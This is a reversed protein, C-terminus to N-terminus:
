PLDKAQDLKLRHGAAEIAIQVFLERIHYSSQEFSGTLQDLMHPSIASPDRQTTHQFLQRVFTRHAAESQVAYQAVDRAGKLRLSKGDDGMFDSAANIPKDKDKTRWRGLSDYHELSFGLPNITEHCAMCASDRTFATVKERMTLNPDFEADDFAIANPPPNLPRGIINRTLFVGRHIPSTSNHYAFATLLYPHTIVGSRRDPPMAVRTFGNGKAKGRNIGYVEAIKDNVYLYDALLLERYDSNESFVTHELFLDLSTRLDALLQQDFEPFLQKDKDVYEARELELWHHFFRMLKAHARPDELMRRAQSELQARTQLEGKVAAARLVDDPMSDWMSLALASAADHADPANLEAQPYLFHPSLLANLVIRKVALGIEQDPRLLAHVYRQKEQESLPRRFARSVFSECFATIRKQFDPAKPNTKALKHLHEHVYGATSVAARTIADLWAESVEAGNIFGMSADDPPFAGSMIFVEPSLKPLLHRQPIVHEVGGPPVWALSIYSEKKGQQKQQEEKAGVGQNHASFELMLPYARGALLFIKRRFETKESSQLWGDFFVTEKTDSIENSIGGGVAQGNNLWMRMAADTRVVIEYEGTEQVILSGRWRVSHGLKDFQEFLPHNANYAANVVPKIKEELPKSKQNMSRGAYIQQQLGREDTMPQDNRFSGVLDALTQRHQEATLRQLTRGSGDNKGDHASPAYFHEHLYAAVAAADEGVCKDAEGEPMTREIRRTLWALTRDGQLPKEYAGEVGQGKDGHCELCQAVYIEAGRALQTNQPDGSPKGHPQVKSDAMVLPVLWASLLLAIGAAISLANKM